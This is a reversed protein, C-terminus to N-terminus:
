CSLELYSNEEMQANQHHKQFIAQVGTDIHLTLNYLTYDDHTEVLVFRMNHGKNQIESIRHLAEEPLVNDCEIYAAHM